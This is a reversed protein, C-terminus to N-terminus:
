LKEGCEPCFKANADVKAGCHSCFKNEPMKTGCEPCFKANTAVEKGCGPCKKTGQAPASTQKPTNQASALGQAFMQGIGAGAGLGVGLGAMNNGNPNNAADRMANAAQYQVYTGMKDEM